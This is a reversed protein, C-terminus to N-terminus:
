RQSFTFVGVKLLGEMDLALLDKECTQLISIAVRFLM